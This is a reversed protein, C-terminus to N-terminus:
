VWPKLGARQLAAAEVVANGNRIVEIVETGRELVRTGQEKKM